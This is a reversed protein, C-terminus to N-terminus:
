TQNHLLTVNILDPFSHNKDARMDKLEKIALIKIFTLIASARTIKAEQTIFIGPKGVKFYNYSIIYIV